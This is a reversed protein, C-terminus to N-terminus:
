HIAYQERKEDNESSSEGSSHIIFPLSLGISQLWHVEPLNPLTLINAQEEQGMHLSSVTPRFKVQDLVGM